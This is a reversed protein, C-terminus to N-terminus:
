VARENMHELNERVKAKRKQQNPRRVGSITYVAGNAAM